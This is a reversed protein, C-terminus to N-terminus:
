FYTTTTTWGFFFVSFSMGDAYTGHYAIRGHVEVCMVCIGREFERFSVFFLISSVADFSVKWMDCEFIVAGRGGCGARCVNIRRAYRTCIFRTFSLFFGREFIRYSDSFVCVITYMVRGTSQVSSAVFAVLFALSLSFRSSSLFFVVPAWATGFVDRSARGWRNVGGFMIIFGSFLLGAM